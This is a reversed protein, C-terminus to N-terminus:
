SPLNAFVIKGRWQRAFNTVTYKKIASNKSFIEFKSIDLNCSELSDIKFWFQYEFSDYKDYPKPGDVTKWPSPIPTHSIRFDIVRGKFEIGGSGKYVNTKGACNYIKPVYVYLEFSEGRKEELKNIVVPSVIASYQMSTTGNKSIFNLHDEGWQRPGMLIICNM